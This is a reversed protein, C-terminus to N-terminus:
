IDKKFISIPFVDFQSGDKLGAVLGLLLPQSNNDFCIVPAGTDVNSKKYGKSATYSVDDRTSSVVNISFMNRSDFDSSLNGSSVNTEGFISRNGFIYIPYGRAVRTNRSECPFNRDTINTLLNKSINYRLPNNKDRKLEEDDLLVDYSTVKGDPLKHLNGNFVINKSLPSTLLQDELIIGSTNIKM